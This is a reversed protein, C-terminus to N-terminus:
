VPIIAKATKTIILYIIFVSVGLWWINYTLVALLGSIIVSLLLASIGSQYSSVYNYSIPMSVVFVLLSVILTIRTFWGVDSFQTFPINLVEGLSTNQVTPSFMIFFFASAILFLVAIYVTNFKNKKAM